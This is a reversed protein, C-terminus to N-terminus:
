LLRTVDWSMDEKKLLWKLAEMVEGKIVGSFRKMFGFTFGDSGPSKNSGCGKIANWAEEEGFSAELTEAEESSIRKTNRGHLRPKELSFKTDDDSIRTFKRGCMLIESVGSKDILDNFEDMGRQNPISNITRRWEKSRQFRWVRVLWGGKEIDVRQNTDVIGKKGSKFKARVCKCLRNFWGNGVM